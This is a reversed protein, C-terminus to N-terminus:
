NATEFIVSKDLYWYSGIKIIHAYIKFNKYNQSGLLTLRKSNESNNDNVESRVDDLNADPLAIGASQARQQVASISSKLAIADAAFEADATKASSDKILFINETKLEASNPVFHQLSDFSIKGQLHIFLAGALEKESTAGRHHILVQSNNKSQASDVSNGNASPHVCAFLLFSFILFSLFLTDRYNKKMLGILM